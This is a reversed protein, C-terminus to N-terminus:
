YSIDMVLLGRILNTLCLSIKLLELTLALMKLIVTALSTRLIEPDTFDPRSEYDSEPYHRFAHGLCLGVM